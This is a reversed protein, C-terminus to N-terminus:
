NCGKGKILIKTGNVEYEANTAISIIKLASFLDLNSIDGTFVCNYIASNEVTIEIQYYKEVQGLVINLKQQDFFLARPQLTALEENLIVPEPHSVIATEFRRISKDYSVKQNPTIIVPTITKESSALKANEFVQVRGTKVEVVLQGNLKNTGVRFSTGLVKTVINNYYVLFPRHPNKKVKFFAEGELYVERNEGSFHKAYHLISGPNLYVKSSDSLILLQVQHTNNLKYEINQPIITAFNSRSNHLFSFTFYSLCILGIFAAAMAIKKFISFPASKTAILQNVSQESELIKRIIDEAVYPPLSVAETEETYLDLEIESLIKDKFSENEILEFLEDQLSLNIDGELYKKLLFDIRTNNKM